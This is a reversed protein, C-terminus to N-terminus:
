NSRIIKKKNHYLFHAVILSLVIIWISESGTKDNMPVKSLQDHLPEEYVPKQTSSPASGHFGYGNPIVMVEPSMSSIEQQNENLAVLSFYYPVNNILDEVSVTTKPSRVIIYDDYSNSKIGFYVKYFAASTVADWELIVSNQMSTGRLGTQVSTQISGSTDSPIGCISQDSAISTDYCEMSCVDCYRTGDSACITNLPNCDMICAALCEELTEEPAKPTAAIMLAEGDSELDESDVAYVQFFYQKDNKLGTIETETKGGSVETEEDLKDIATGYKIRYSKIESEHDIIPSWNLHVKSDMAEGELGEVKPPYVLDPGSVRISAKNRFESKNALKDILLVDIPYDGEIMPAAVTASYTGPQGSNEPLPEEVGQLRVSVEELNPESQVRIKLAMGPLVDGEPEISFDNLPPPLTDVTVTVSPSVDGSESMVYFIHTGTSINQANYTFFGDEDTESDGVKVDDMFVKLNINPDGQGSIIVLSNGLESGDKPSKIVLNSDPTPTVANASVVNVEKEGIIDWENKDLIQLTQKGLETFRLALNFTFKGQDSEKFTYEGDNPLVANEDELAAIIITGTYNSAVNGDKDRAIVTFTLDKDVEVNSALGQIEFSNVKGPLVQNVASTSDAGLLNASLFNGGIDKKVPESFVVETRSTLIQNSTIDMATLVSVGSYKSTLKFNMRGQEDTVNGNLRAIQDEPRSSILTIQHDKIPNRYEDNLTVTVFTADKGDADVMARTKTITSQSVSLPGAFVNFSSQPAGPMSVAVKYEGAVRTQLGYLEASAVGELDAQVPIRVISTDPKEVVLIMEKGPTTISTKLRAGYGAITDTGYAYPVSNASALPILLIQSALLILGLTTKLAKM